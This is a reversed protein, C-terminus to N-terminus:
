QFKGVLIRLFIYSLLQTCLILVVLYIVGMYFERKLGLFDYV